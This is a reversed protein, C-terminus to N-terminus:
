IWSEKIKQKIATSSIEACYPIRVVRGGNKEIFETGQPVKDYDSGRCMIDFVWGHHDKLNKLTETPDTDDQRVIYDVCRLANIVEWRQEYNLIPKHFKYRETGEDTLLGVVLVNGLARAAKLYRIHGYHLLDFVGAAYVKKESAKPSKIEYPRLGTMEM